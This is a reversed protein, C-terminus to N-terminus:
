LEAKEGTSAKVFGRKELATQALAKSTFEIGKLAQREGKSVWYVQPTPLVDEGERLANACFAKHEDDCDCCVAGVKVLEDMGFPGKAPLNATLGHKDALEQIRDRQKKQKKLAKNMDPPDNGLELAASNVGDRNEATASHDYFFVLWDKKAKADPFHAECLPVVGHKMKSKFMGPRCKASGGKTGRNKAIGEIFRAMPETERGGNYSRGKGMVYAKITPYGNVGERSCRAAELTCDVAGIGVEKSNKFQKAM